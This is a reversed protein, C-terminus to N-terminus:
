IEVPEVLDIYDSLQMLMDARAVMVKATLRLLDLETKKLQADSLQGAEADSRRDSFNTREIELRKELVLNSEAQHLIRDLMVEREHFLNESIRDQRAKLRNRKLRAEILEHKTQFGDFINWHVSVGAFLALTDVNNRTSTNSQDQSASASFNLFPRKKATIIKLEQVQRDIRKPQAEPLPLKDDM